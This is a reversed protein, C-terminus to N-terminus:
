GRRRAYADMLYERASRPRNFSERRDSECARFGVYVGVVLGGILGCAFSGLVATVPYVLVLCVFDM